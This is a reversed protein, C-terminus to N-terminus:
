MVLGLLGGVLLLCSGDPRACSNVRVPEVGVGLAVPVVFEVAKEAFVIADVDVTEPDVHVFGGIETGVWAGIGLLVGLIVVKRGRSRRNALRRASNWSERIIELGLLIALLTARSTALISQRISIENRRRVFNSVSSPREAILGKISIDDMSTIPISLIISVVKVTSTLTVKDQAM